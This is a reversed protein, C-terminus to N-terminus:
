PKKDPVGGREKENPSTESGGPAAPDGPQKPPPAEQPDEPPVYSPQTPLSM